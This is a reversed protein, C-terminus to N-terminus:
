QTTPKSTNCVPIHSVEAEVVRTAGRKADGARGARQRGPIGPPARPLVATIRLVRSLQPLWDGHLAVGYRPSALRHM